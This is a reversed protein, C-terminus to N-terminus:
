GDKFGWHVWAVLASGFVLTGSLVWWDDARIGRALMSGIWAGLLCYVCRLFIQAETM